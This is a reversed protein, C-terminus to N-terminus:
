LVGTGEVWAYVATATAIDARVFGPPLEFGGINDSTFTVDPGVDVWTANDPLRRQMKVTGGGWNAKASFMGRGGGWYVEAGTASLNEALKVFARLDSGYDTM